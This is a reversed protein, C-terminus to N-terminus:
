YFSQSGFHDRKAIEKLPYEERLTTLLLNTKIKFYNTNKNFVIKMQSVSVKTVM